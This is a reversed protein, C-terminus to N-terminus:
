IPLAKQAGSYATARARLLYRAYRSGDGTMEYLTQIPWGAAKLEHVRAALRRRHTQREYQAETLGDAGMAVLLRGAEATAPKM